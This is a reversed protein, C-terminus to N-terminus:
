PFLSHKEDRTKPSITKSKEGEEVEYTDVCNIACKQFHVQKSQNVIVHHNTILIM